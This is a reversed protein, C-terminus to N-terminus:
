RPRELGLDTYISDVQSDLHARAARRESAAIRRVERLQLQLDSPPTTVGQLFPKFAAVYAATMRRAVDILPQVARSLAQAQEPTLTEVSGPIPLRDSSGANM